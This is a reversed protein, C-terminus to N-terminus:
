STSASWHGKTMLASRRFPSTAPRSWILRAATARDRGIERSAFGIEGTTPSGGQHHIRLSPSSGHSSSARSGLERM